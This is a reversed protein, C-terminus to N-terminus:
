GHRQDMGPSASVPLAITCHVGDDTLSYTTRAKLQYPLAREILERGQGKVCSSAGEAPLTIGTERWDIHLWPTDAHDDADLSWTVALRGGTQGLAGYKVANTALEHLAMALTQVTSSRLRIGSPGDLTIRDPDGGMAELENQILEDFTVRDLDSLRSLLGQVRALAELRSQFRVRFHDLDTSSRATMDSLALVVTMLNRTRHHLEGILVKQREESERRETIDTFLVAVRNRPRDLSFVNLNFTRGLRPETEEVWIPQGSDLVQGYLQAWRPNPTELLETITKGVPWPMSTHKLFAANVEIYRFDSWAGHQDKLPEVVAYAEDMLEFLNRYRQESDRLAREAERRATLDATVALLSSPRGDRDRLVTLTSSAWIEEGNARHYRKDISVPQDNAIAQALAEQSARVDDPHTVQRVTTALLEDRSRGLIRCLESNARLFRGGLDLESLGVPASAFIAELREESEELLINAERKQTVDQGIKLYGTVLGRGDRLPRVSGDIFVGSGDKRLHWRVDPAFGTERAQVVEQVDVGAKRDEPTFLIAGPQGVAEEETWGFVRAAGPLWDTIRDDKDTIFIAYDLAQAVTFRFREESARLASLKLLRDVVSGLISAYTRLFQIDDQAFDRPESADVQLLGFARGGPLFIPVNALARVGAERMFGPVEFRDERSIDTSIVPKRQNISFSESSHKNMSIRTRGVIDQAWGVGARVLLKRGDEEIELVKARGTGMAESVLRCAETLIDDLDDSQLAFDGFDALIKQQRLLM